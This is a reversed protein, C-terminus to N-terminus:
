ELSFLEQNELVIFVASSKSCVIASYRGLQISFTYKVYPIWHLSLVSESKRSKFM